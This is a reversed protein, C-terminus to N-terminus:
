VGQDIAHVDEVPTEELFTMQPLIADPSERYAKTHTKQIFQKAQELDHPFVPNSGRRFQECQAM